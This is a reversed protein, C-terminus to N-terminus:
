KLCIITTITFYQQRTINCTTDTCLLSHHIIKNTFTLSVSADRDPLAIPAIAPAHMSPEGFSMAPM